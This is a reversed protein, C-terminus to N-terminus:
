ASYLLEFQAESGLRAWSMMSIERMGKVVPGTAALTVAGGREWGRMRGLRMEREGPRGHYLEEIL